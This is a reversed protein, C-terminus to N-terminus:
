ERANTFLFREFEELRPLSPLAGQRAVCMAGAANGWAAAMRAPLGETLAVAFAGLFADGAATDDVVEVNHPPIYVEHNKEMVMVGEEGLTVILTRAGLNRMLGIASSSVELGTLLALESRNLVLYDVKSIIGSPLDRAESANLVVLAGHANALEIARRLAPTPSESQVLLIAAGDFAAEAATIDEASLCTNAGPIVVITNQGADDVTILAIGTPTSPDRSVGAIDVGERSVAEFLATGFEDSGARGILKVKGGLRAAAVAQNAGKGGPFTRFGSGVVKEGIEPHRPARVVLDMNLNGIVVIHGNM